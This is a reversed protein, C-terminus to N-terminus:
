PMVSQQLIGCCFNAESHRECRDTCKGGTFDLAASWWGVSPCCFGKEVEPLKVIQLDIRNDQSAPREQEGTQGIAPADGACRVVAELAPMGQAAEEEVICDGHVFVVDPVQHAGPRHGCPM